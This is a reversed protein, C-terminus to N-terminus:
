QQIYKEDFIEFGLTNYILERILNEAILDEIFICEEYRECSICLSVGQRLWERSKQYGEQFEVIYYIPLFFEEWEKFTKFPSPKYM